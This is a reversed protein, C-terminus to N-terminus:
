LDHTGLSQCTGAVERSRTERLIDLQIDLNLTRALDRLELFPELYMPVFRSVDGLSDDFRDGAMRVQIRWEVDVRLGQLLEEPPVLQGRCLPVLCPRAHERVEVAILLLRVPREHLDGPLVATCEETVPHAQALGEDAQHQDLPEDKVLALTDRQECRLGGFLPYPLGM